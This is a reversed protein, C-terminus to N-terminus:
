TTNPCPSIEVIVNDRLLYDRCNPRDTEKPPILFYSQTNQAKRLIEYHAGGQDYSKIVKPFQMEYTNVLLAFIHCRGDGVRPLSKPDRSQLEKLEADSIAGSDVLAAKEATGHPPYASLAHTCLEDKGEQSMHEISSHPVVALWAPSGACSVSLMGFLVSAARKM